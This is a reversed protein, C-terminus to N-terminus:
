KLSGAHFARPLLAGVTTTEYKGTKDALIVVTDMGFESMFQRCAGCPSGGDDTVVAIAIFERAGESVAKVYATREACISVGYSANEVNCGGFVAGDESLLAAGVRYGSYPVHANARTNDAVEILVQAVDDPIRRRRAKPKAASSTTTETPESQPPNKKSSRPV